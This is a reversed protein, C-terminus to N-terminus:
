TDGQTIVTHTICFFEWWRLSFWHRSDLGLYTVFNGFENDDANNLLIACELLIFNEPINLAHSLDTRDAM